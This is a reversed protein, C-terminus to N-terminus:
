RRFGHGPLVQWAAHAVSTSSFVCANCAACETHPPQVAATAATIARRVKLLLSVVLSASSHHEQGVSCSHGQQQQQQQQQQQSSCKGVYLVYEHQTHRHHLQQLSDASGCHRQLQQQTHVPSLQSGAVETVASMEHTLAACEQAHAPGSGNGHQAVAPGAALAKNSRSGSAVSSTGSSKAASSSRSEHGGQSAALLPHQEQWFDGQPRESSHGSPELVSPAATVAATIATGAAAAAAQEKHLHFLLQASPLQEFYLAVTALMGLPAYDPGLAALLVV